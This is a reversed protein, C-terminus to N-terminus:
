GLRPRRYSRKKSSTPDFPELVKCSDFGEHLIEKGGEQFYQRLTITQHVIKFIDDPRLLLLGRIEASTTPVEDTQVLYMVSLKRIPMPNNSAVYLPIEKNVKDCPWIVQQLEADSHDRNLWYTAPPIVPHINIQAEENVERVACQWATEGSECHGGLRIIALTDGNHKPGVAFVYYGSVMVYAGATGVKAKDLGVSCADLM